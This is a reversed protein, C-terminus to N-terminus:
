KNKQNNLKSKKIGENAAKDSLSFHHCIDPLIRSPFKPMVLVFRNMIRHLDFIRLLVIKKEFNIKRSTKM